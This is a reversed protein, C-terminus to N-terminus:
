LDDSDSEGYKGDSENDIRALEIDADVNRSGCSECESEIKHNMIANCDNCVTYANSM